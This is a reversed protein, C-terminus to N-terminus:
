DLTQYANLGLPSIWPILPLSGKKYLLSGIKESYYCPDNWKHFRGQYCCELHQTAVKKIETHCESAMLHNGPAKIAKESSHTAESLTKTATQHWFSKILTGLHRPSM